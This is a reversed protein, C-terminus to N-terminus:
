FYFRYGAFIGFGTLNSSGSTLFNAKSFSYRLLLYVRGPGLPYESGGDILFSPLFKSEKNTYGLFSEESRVWTTGGGVGLFPVLKFRLPFLLFCSAIVPISYIDVTYSYTGGIEQANISGEESGTYFGFIIGPKIEINNLHILYGFNIGSAFGAGAGQPFAIGLELGLSFNKKKETTTQITQKQPKRKQSIIEGTKHAPQNLLAFTLIISSIVM